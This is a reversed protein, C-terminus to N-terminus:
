GEIMNNVNIISPDVFNNVLVNYTKMLFNMCFTNAYTDMPISEGLNLNASYKLFETEVSNITGATLLIRSMVYKMSPQSPISEIINQTSPLM